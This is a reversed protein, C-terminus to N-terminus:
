DESGADHVVVVNTALSRPNDGRALAELEVGSLEPEPAAQTEVDDKEKDSM